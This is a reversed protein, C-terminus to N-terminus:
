CYRVVWFGLWVAALIIITLIVITKSYSEAQEM